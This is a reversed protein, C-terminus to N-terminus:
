QSVVVLLVANCRNLGHCSAAQGEAKSFKGPTLIQYKAPLHYLTHVAAAVVPNAISVFIDLAHPEHGHGNRNSKRSTRHSFLGVEAILSEALQCPLPM